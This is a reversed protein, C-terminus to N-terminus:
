TSPAGPLQNTDCNQEDSFITKIKTSSSGDSAHTERHTHLEDRSSPTSEIPLISLMSRTPKRRKGLRTGCLTPLRALQEKLEQFAAECEDTWEVIRGEIKLLKFIPCCKNTSRPLFRSLAAVRGNLSQLEKVM